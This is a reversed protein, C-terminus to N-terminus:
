RGARHRTHSTRQDAFPPSKRAAVWPGRSPTHAVNKPRRITPKQTGGGVARAIAHTRREKTPSHHAKAHRWGRGARHRTHSTRQDAFPPSKRAAVWPGRSPTHAVNKPRRITPKQTGGGV